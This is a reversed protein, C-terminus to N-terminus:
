KSIGKEPGGGPRQAFSSRVFWLMTHLGFFCFISLLLLNMFQAAFYLSPNSKRDRPNAHPHYSV